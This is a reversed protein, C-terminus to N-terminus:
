KQLQLGVGFQGFNQYVHDFRADKYFIMLRGDFEKFLYNFNIETTKQDYDPGFGESFNAQAWKALVQAKHGNGLPFLYAGLFYGGKDESYASDYGGLSSYDAYEAEVTVVNKKNGLTKEMLFDFSWASEDDGKHQGALGVALLNKAGYYTGNLYYGAEQDWFDLQIRGATLLTTDGNLSEGDFVGGSLKAIGFQGWYLVGNDRGQYIFPYGDQVGDTYVNWHSAYYPGYLNARDSPPLLRGAWINFKPSFEFQGAADLVEVDNGAATFATNFMLKVKPLVAGSVYLRMDNLRFNAYSDDEDPLTSVFSTRLGAGISIPGVQNQAAARGAPLFIAALLVAGSVRVLSASRARAASEPTRSRRSFVCTSLM